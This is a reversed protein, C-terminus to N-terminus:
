AIEPLEAGREQNPGYPHGRAAVFLREASKPDVASKPIQQTERLGFFPKGFM